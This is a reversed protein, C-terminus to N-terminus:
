DALRDPTLVSAPFMWNAWPHDADPDPHCYLVFREDGEAFVFGLLSSSRPELQLFGGYDVWEPDDIGLEGDDELLQADTEDADQRVSVLAFWTEIDERNELQVVLMKDLPWTSPGSYTCRDESQFSLAADADARTWAEDVDGHVIASIADAAYRGAPQDPDLPAAHSWDTAILHATIGASRAHQVLEDSIYLPIATDNAGHLLWMELDTNTPQIALVDYPEYLNERAPGYDPGSRPARPGYQYWGEYDGALGIFRSPAHDIDADCDIGPWPPDDVLAVRAGIMGGGSHGVVTLDNPDGGLESSTRRIERLACIVAESQRRFPEDGEDDPFGAVQDIVPWSPVYVLAGRAAVAAALPNMRTRDGETGHLMVVVPAAETSEPPLHVDTENGALEITQPSAPDTTSTQESATDDASGCGALGIMVAALMPALRKVVIRGDSSVVPTM